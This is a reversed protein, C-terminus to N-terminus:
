RISRRILFSNIASVLVIMLFLVWAVAAGYGFHLDDFAREYIYLAVTQFQRQTGGLHSGVGTLILPEAFVQLGGITSVITTFLITPKLMPITISWFRRWPGAGDVEACDYLDRPIVQMAALFILTNYGTWRWDVMVSIATWSAWKTAQWDIHHHMGLLQLVWNALGFDTQFIMGFVIAVAAVSTVNPVFIAMRFFTRGRLPRNLLSALALALVLQPITALLFMGFTNYVANWFHDDHWLARYNAFGVYKKNGIIDWNYLSMRATTILPYLGFVCFLVFFPSVLLYPTVKRDLFSGLRMRARSPTREPIPAVRDPRTVTASQSM